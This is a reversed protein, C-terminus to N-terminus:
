KLHEKIIKEFVDAIKVMGYDNPHVGDTTIELDDSLKQHIDIFIVDKSNSLSKFYNDYSEKKLKEEKNIRDKNFPIRNTVIVKTHPQQNKFTDIFLELRKLITIDTANAESDIIFLDVQRKGLIAAIEKENHANGNFGYNLIEINLRRTLINSYSMGPRSACAGHLISTGYMMVKKKTEKIPVVVSNQDFSLTLTEVAVFLPLNLIFKRMENSDFEVLITDYSNQNLEPRSVGCFVYENKMNDFVYLDIGMQGIPSSNTMSFIKNFQISAAIIKSDTAFHAQIGSSEQALEYVRPSVDKISNLENDTFRKFGPDTLATSGFLAFHNNDKLNIMKM